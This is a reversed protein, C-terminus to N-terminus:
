DRLCFTAITAVKNETESIVSTFEFAGKEEVCKKSHEKKMKRERNSIQPSEIAILQILTFLIFKFSM